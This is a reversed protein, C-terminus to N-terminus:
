GRTTFNDENCGETSLALADANNASYILSRISLYPFLQTKHLRPWHWTFIWTPKSLRTWMMWLLIWSRLLKGCSYSINTLLEPPQWPRLRPSWFRGCRWWILFVM